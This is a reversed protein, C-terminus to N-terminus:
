LSFQLLFLEFHSGSVKMRIPADTSLVRSSNFESGFITSVGASVSFRSSLDSRLGFGIGTVDPMKTTFYRTVTLYFSLWDSSASKKNKLLTSNLLVKFNFSVPLLASAGGEKAYFSNDAFDTGSLTVGESLFSVGARFEYRFRSQPELYQYVGFYIAYQVLHDNFSSNILSDASADINISFVEVGANISRMLPNLVAPKFSKEYATYSRIWLVENTGTKNLRLDLFLAKGAVYTLSGELFADIRLRKGVKWLEDPSPLANMISFSSDTSSIKLTNMDPLSVVVPTGLSTFIEELRNEFHDKLPAPITAGEIALRYVAIRKLGPSIEALDAPIQNFIDEMLNLVKENTMGNQAFGVGCFCLLYIVILWKKFLKNM